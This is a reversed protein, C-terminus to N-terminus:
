EQVLKLQKVFVRSRPMGVPRDGNLSTDLELNSSVQDMAKM